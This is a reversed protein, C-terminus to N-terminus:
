FPEFALIAVDQARTESEECTILDEGVLDEIAVLSLYEVHGSEVNLSKKFRCRGGGSLGRDVRIVTIVAHTGVGLATITGAVSATAIVAATVATARRSM